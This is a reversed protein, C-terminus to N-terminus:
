YADSSIVEGRGQHRAGVLTRLNISDKIFKVSGDAMLVNRRGPPQEPRQLVVFVNRASGSCTSRCSNWPGDGLKADRDHPVPDRVDRGWGWRCGIATSYPGGNKYATGHVGPHRHHDVTARSLLRRLHRLRRRRTVGTM